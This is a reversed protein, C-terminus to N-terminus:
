VPQSALWRFFLAGLMGGLLTLGLYWLFFWVHELVDEEREDNM